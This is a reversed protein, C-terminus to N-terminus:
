PLGTPTNYITRTREVGNISYSVQFLDPRANGGAYVPQINVKVDKGTELADLWEQELRYWQGGAGNLAKDMPVLNVAEGAGGFVAAILHGGCDDPQRCEGGAIRQRYNNQNQRM